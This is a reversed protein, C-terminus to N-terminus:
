GHWEIEKTNEIFMAEIKDIDREDTPHPNCWITDEHFFAMKQVGAKSTWIAPAEIHLIPSDPGNYVSLKGKIIINITEFRHKKGIAFTGASMSTERLYQGDAFHHNVPCEVQPLKEMESVLAPISNEVNAVGLKEMFVEIDNM